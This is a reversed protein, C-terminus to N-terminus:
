FAHAMYIVEGVSFPIFAEYCPLCCVEIHALMACPVCYCLSIIPALFHQHKTFADFPWPQYAIDESALWSTAPMDGSYSRRLDLM